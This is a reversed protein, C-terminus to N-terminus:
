KKEENIIKKEGSGVWNDESNCNKLMVGVVPAHLPSNAELAQEEPAAPEPPSHCRQRREWHFVKAPTIPVPLKVWIGECKQSGKRRTSQLEWCQHTGSTRFAFGMCCERVSGVHSLWLELRPAPHARPTEGQLSCYPSPNGVRDSSRLM